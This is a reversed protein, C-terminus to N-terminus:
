VEKKLYDPLNELPFEIEIVNGEKWKKAIISYLGPTVFYKVGKVTVSAGEAWTPIRVFIEIYRKIEMSFNLRISGSKPFDTEQVIKVAGGLTHEYSIEKPLFLNVHIHDVNKTFIYPSVLSDFVQPQASFKKWAIEELEEAFRAKGTLQFLFGTLRFWQFIEEHSLQNTKLNNKLDQWSALFTELEFQEDKQFYMHQFGILEDLEVSLGNEKGNEQNERTTLMDQEALFEKGSPHVPQTVPEPFKEHYSCSFIIQFFIGTFLLRKM